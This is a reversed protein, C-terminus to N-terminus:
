INNLIELTKEKPLPAHGKVNRDCYLKLNLDFETDENGQFEYVQELFDTLHKKIHRKDGHNQLYYINRPLGYRLINEKISLREPFKEEVDEVKFKSLM